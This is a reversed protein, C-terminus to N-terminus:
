GAEDDLGLGTSCYPLGFYSQTIADAGGLASRRARDTRFDRAMREVTDCRRVDGEPTPDGIAAERHVEEM